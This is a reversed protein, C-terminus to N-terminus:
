EDIRQRALLGYYSLPQWEFAAEYAAFAETVRGLKGLIRGQWYFSRQVWSAPHERQLRVLTELATPLDGLRYANWAMYWLADDKASDTPYREIFEGFMKVAREHQRGNYALWAAKFLAERGERKRRYRDAFERYVAIAEDTRDSASFCRAVWLEYSMLQWGRSTAALQSFLDIATDFDRQRYALQPPVRVRHHGRRSGNATRSVRNRRFNLSTKRSRTTGLAELETLEIDVEELMRSALLRDVRALRAGFSPQSARGAAVLRELHAAAPESMTTSRYYVIGTFGSAADAWRREREDIYALNFRAVSANSMRPAAQLAKQYARRARGWQARAFHADAVGYLAEGVLPSSRMKALRQWTDLAEVWAGQQRFAQARSAFVFDVIEPLERELGDLYTLAQDGKGMSLAARAAVFRAESWIPGRRDPTLVGRLAEFAERDDGRAHAEVARMVSRDGFTDASVGVPAGLLLSVWMISARRM